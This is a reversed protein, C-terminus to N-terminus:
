VDKIVILFAHKSVPRAVLIVVNRWATERVPNDVSEQALVRVPMVVSDQANITVIVKVDEVAVELVIEM